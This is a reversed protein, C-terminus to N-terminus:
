RIGMGHRIVFVTLVATAMFILTAAISRPSLRAIGCIGHGSTCGSGLLTGAGVLLGGVATALHHGEFKLTSSTGLFLGTWATGILMGGVFLARWAFTSNFELTLLGAFIGSAGMIRGSTAMLLVAALGILMGGLLGAYPTFETLEM